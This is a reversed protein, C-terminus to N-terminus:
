WDIEISYDGAEILGKEYLDNIVMDISPYFKRNWWLKLSFENEPETKLVQKPDRELWVQFPVGYGDEGLSELLEFEEDRDDEEGYYDVPDECPVTIYEMGRSKCGDQQQFNYPRGYHDSVFKNWDDVDIVNSKRVILSM